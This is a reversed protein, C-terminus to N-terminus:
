ASNGTTTERVSRARAPGIGPVSLLEEDTANVVALVSGFHSLLARASRASVGPVAALMAEAATRPAPAPRQAYVPRERGTTRRRREALRHLWRATDAPGVTRILAVKLELAAICAGRIANPELPGDDLDRGEILLYPQASAARLKGIQAWFRGNIISGHLDLVSKREVLGGAGVVYDGAALRLVTVEVGAEALLRPIGSAREHVDAFVRIRHDDKAM